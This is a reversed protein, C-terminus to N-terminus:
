VDIINLKSFIFTILHSSVITKAINIIGYVIHVRTTSVVLKAMINKYLEMWYLLINCNYHVTM